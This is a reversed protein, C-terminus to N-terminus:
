MCLYSVCVCVTLFSNAYWYKVTKCGACQKKTPFGCVACSDSGEAAGAVAAAMIDRNRCDPPFEAANSSSNSDVVFSKSATDWLFYLFGIAAFALVIFQLLWNHDAAAM